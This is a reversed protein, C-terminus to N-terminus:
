KGTIFKEFNEERLVVEHLNNDEHFRDLFSWYKSRTGPLRKLRFNDFIWTTKKFRPLKLFLSKIYFYKGIEMLLYMILFKFSTKVRSQGPTIHALVKKLYYAARLHNLGDGFGATEEIFRKRFAELDQDHFAAIKGTSYFEEICSQFEELSNLIVSGKHLEDRSFNPDPNILLTPKQGMVWSEISTTTEFGTWIDSISIIDHIPENQTLYLVNPYDQLRIMENMGPDTISPNAENPHRKLVFLIDPNKLIAERLIEEILYMQQELWPFKEETFNNAILEMRGQENYLKGFAWGAYAIIKEFGPLNHQKLFEDRSQFKYIKYRDFGTGGTIVMKAAFDPEKMRLFKWTRESWHCIFEQFFIKDKNYGWYDFSGDTRFNGESILAFVKIGNDYAYKAAQYHRVSGITNPLLVLDPKKRYIAHIDWIFAFDVMCNFYKEAVYVLPLLIEVDRGTDTDLFCLIRIQNPAVM